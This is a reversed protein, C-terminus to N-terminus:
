LGEQGAQEARRFPSPKAEISDKEEEEQGQGVEEELHAALSSLYAYIRDYFQQLTVFSIHYPAGRAERM